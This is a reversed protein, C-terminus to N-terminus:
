YGIADYAVEYGGSPLNIIALVFAAIVIFWILTRIVTQSDSHAQELQKQYDQELKNM